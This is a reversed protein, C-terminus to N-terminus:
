RAGRWYLQIVAAGRANCITMSRPWTDTAPLAECTLQRDVINSFLWMRAVKETDQDDHELWIPEVRGTDLAHDFQEFLDRKRQLRATAATDISFVSPTM